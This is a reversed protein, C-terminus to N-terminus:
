FLDLQVNKKHMQSTGPADSLVRCFDDFDNVVSAGEQVYMSCTRSIKESGGKGSAELATLSKKELEKAEECFCTDLFMVDRDYGLAYDVTILAGSGVPAESVVTVPSLSAIIRNRQVFRWSEAPAGPLYESVICGETKLIYEAIKKNGSPVITDIGGPLVACTLGSLGEEAAKLAGRHAFSDAGYALGSVVCCGNKAAQFAFDATKEASKRCLRRTGVVSVTKKELCSLNGRYYLVFPPDFIESLLRPFSDQDYRVMEIGFREMIAASKEAQALASGGNWTSTRVRRHIASSIDDRSFSALEEASKVIKRLSSKERFTLFEMSSLVLDLFDM